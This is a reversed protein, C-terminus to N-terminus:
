VVFGFTAATISLIVAAAPIALLVAAVGQTKETNSLTTM